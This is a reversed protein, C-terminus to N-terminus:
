CNERSRLLGGPKEGTKRTESSTLPALGGKLSKEPRVLERKWDKGGYVATLRVLGHEKERTRQRCAVM